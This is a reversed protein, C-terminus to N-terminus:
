GRRTGLSILMSGFSGRLRRTEYHEVDTITSTLHFGSLVTPPTIDCDVGQKSLNTVTRGCVQNAIASLAERRMAADIHVAPDVGLDTCMAAVVADASPDDLSVLLTGRLGGLIGVTALAAADQVQGDDTLVEATELGIDALFQRAAEVFSDVPAKM